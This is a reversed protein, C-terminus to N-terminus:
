QLDSGLIKENNDIFPGIEQAVIISGKNNLHIRDAFYEDSLNLKKHLNIVKGGSKLVTKSANHHFHELINQLHKDNKVLLLRYPQIALYFEIGKEKTKKVIRELALFSENTTDAVYPNNWRKEVIDDDYINLLASGTYDFDLYTFKNNSMFRKQWELQREVCQTFYKFAYLAYKIDTGNKGLNIYKKAFDINFKRLNSGETFDLSQATYIVRKANPFLSLLDWIQEWHTVELSFSSLNVVHKIKKSSRELAVGSINNLGISSGVIITDINERDPIDRIFM